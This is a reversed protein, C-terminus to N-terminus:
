GPVKDIPTDRLFTVVGTDPDVEYDKGRVLAVKRGGRKVRIIISPSPVNNQGLGARWGKPIVIM